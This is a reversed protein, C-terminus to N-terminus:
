QISNRPSKTLYAVLGDKRREAVPIARGNKLRIDGGPQYADVYRINVLFSAHCRVFAAAPLLGEFDKITKKTSIHQDDTMHFTVGDGSELYLIDDINIIKILGGSRLALRGTLEPRLYHEHMVAVQEANPIAQYAKQLAQSFELPDIPKLLYDMAGAKIAKIAYEEFGTAFIVQFRLPHLTKLIDFATGDGLEIDAILLQPETAPILLLAERVSAATGLYNFGPQCELLQRLHAALKAQDEVLVVRVPPTTM